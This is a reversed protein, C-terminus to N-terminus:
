LQIAKVSTGAQLAPQNIPRILLANADSLVTLLASDQRSHATIMRGDETETIRARMYHERPGNRTLDAALTATVVQPLVDTLGAMRRLMPLLFLHGCVMASVPNGPLGLFPKDRMTGSMLPKGPRMAIKYFARDLGFDQAVEGVLDHDGVSAGGITVILDASIATTFTNHLADKTDATIPLIDATGGNAEILAKLGFINSAIIQDPRPDGGPMVLEDGTAILAVHPRRAVNVTAVNMAALLAIDSATLRRPARLEFADPFDAGIPRVYDSTDLADNLTIIDGDRSVDEQIVVRSTGIPMPAGTFIRLAEGAQVIGDWAHGAAAEGIVRFTANPSVADAAVAYGDMASAAFPPQPRTSEATRILTRGAAEALPVTEAGLTALPALCLDQAEAVTIM